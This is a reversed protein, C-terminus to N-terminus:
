EATMDLLSWSRILYPDEPDNLAVDCTYFTRLTAGFGNQSDVYSKVRFADRGAEDAIVFVDAGLFPHDATGPSVLMREIYTQCMVVATTSHDRPRDTAEPLAAVCMVVASLLLSLSLFARSFQGM